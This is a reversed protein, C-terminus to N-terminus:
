NTGAQDHRKVHRLAEEAIALQTPLDPKDKLDDNLSLSEFDGPIPKVIESFLMLAESCRGEHKLEDGLITRVWLCERNNQDRRDGVSQDIIRSMDNIPERSEGQDLKILVRLHIVQCEREFDDKFVTSMEVQGLLELADEYHKMERLTTALQIGSDVTTNSNMSFLKQRAERAFLINDRAPIYEHQKRYVPGLSTRAMLSLDNKEGGIPAWKQLISDYM